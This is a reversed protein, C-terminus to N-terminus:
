PVVEWIWKVLLLGLCVVLGVATMSATKIRTEPTSMSKGAAIEM